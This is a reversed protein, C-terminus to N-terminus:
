KRTKSIVEKDDLTSAHNRADTHQFFALGDSTFHFADKDPYEVFLSKSEKDFKRTKTEEV